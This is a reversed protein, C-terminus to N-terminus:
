FQPAEVLQHWGSADRDLYFGYSQLFCGMDDVLVEVRGERLTEALEDADVDGGDIDSLCDEVVGSIDGWLAVVLEALFSSQPGIIADAQAALDLYHADCPSVKLLREADYEDEYPGGDADADWELHVSGNVVGSTVVTGLLVGDIRFEPQGQPVPGGDIRTSVIVEAVDRNIRIRDGANFQDM